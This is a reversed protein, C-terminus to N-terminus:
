GILSFLGGGSSPVFKRIWTGFATPNRTQIWVRGPGTFECALGEGSTMSSVWGKGAKIMRYSTDGSWAVVHGNDVVYNQGAPIPLEMIAGFASVAFHGRGKLHLVFFGAGSFLGAGLKQAKTDLEVNEFAALMCGNQVYFDQGNEIPIVQVDGPVSPAIIVDGSRDVAKIEQFFFTEGGLVSRKMAGFFGGWLHGSIELHGSKAVMAGSEARLSEGAELRASIVANTGPHMIQYQM